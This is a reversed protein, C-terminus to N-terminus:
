ESKRDHFEVKLSPKFKPFNALRTKAKETVLYEDPVEEIGHAKAFQLAGRACFLVHDSQLLLEDNPQKCLYSYIWCLYTIHFTSMYYPM